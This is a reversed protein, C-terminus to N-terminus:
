DPGLRCAATPQTYDVLDGFTYRDRSSITLALTERVFRFNWEKGDYIIGLGGFKILRSGQLHYRSTSVEDAPSLISGDAFADGSSLDTLEYYYKSGTTGIDGYCIYKAKAGAVAAPMEIKQWVVDCSQFEKLDTVYILQNKNTDTCAPMDSSSVALSMTSSQNPTEAPAQNPAQKKEDAGCATILLILMIHKYM